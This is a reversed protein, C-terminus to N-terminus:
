HRKIRRWVRCKDKPNMPSDLPCKFAAGFHEFNKMAENIRIRGPPHKQAQWNDSRFEVARIRGCWGQALSIFFLQDNTYKQLGPWKPPDAGFLRTREKRYARFSTRIGNNDSITEQKQINGNGKVTINYFENHHVIKGFEDILCQQRAKFEDTDNGPNGAPLGRDEWLDYTHTFEHGIVYGIGAYHTELPWHRNFFPKSIIGMPIGIREGDANYANVLAVKSVNEEKDFQMKIWAARGVIMMQEIPSMDDPIALLEGLDNALESDLANYNYGIHAPLKALEVLPKDGVARLYQVLLHENLKFFASEWMDNCTLELHKYIAKRGLWSTWAFVSVDPMIDSASRIMASYREFMATSGLLNVRTEPGLERKREGYVHNGIFKLWEFEPALEQLQAITLTTIPPNPQTERVHFNQVTVYFQSVDM